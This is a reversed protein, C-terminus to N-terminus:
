IGLLIRGASYITSVNAATLTTGTIFPLAIRGSFLNTLAPTTNYNAGVLLKASGGPQSAYLANSIVNTTAEATANLYGIQGTTTEAGTTTVVVFTWTNVVLATTGTYIITHDNTEDYSTFSLKSNADLQLLFERQLNVDYKSMITVTTIDTPCIWAGVSFAANTPFEYDTSDEGMLNHNGASTFQYSHVGGVHRYPSFEAQLTTATPVEDACQLTHYAGKYNTILGTGSATGCGVSEFFPFLTPKTSGLATMISDLVAITNISESGVGSGGSSINSM